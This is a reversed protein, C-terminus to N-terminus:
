ASTVKTSAHVATNVTNRFEHFHVDCEKHDGNLFIAIMPKLIRKCRETPNARHHYPPPMVLEIRYSQVMEVIRKNEFESGNDVVLRLPTGCSFIVLDKLAKKVAIETANLVPNVEIWRTFLDQFVIM